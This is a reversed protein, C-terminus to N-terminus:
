AFIRPAEPDPRRTDSEHITGTPTRYRGAGLDLLCRNRGQRKAEYLALDATALLDEGDRAILEPFVALGISM